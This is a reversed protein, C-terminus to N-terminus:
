NFWKGVEPPTLKTGVYSRKSRNTPFGSRIFEVKVTPRRWKKVEGDRSLRDLLSMEADIDNRNRDSLMLYSISGANTKICSVM